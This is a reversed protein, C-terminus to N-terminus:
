RAARSIQPAALNAVPQESIAKTLSAPNYDTDGSYVATITHTGSSLPLFITAVGSSNLTATGILNGFEYFNITGSPIGGASSTVKVTINVGTQTSVSTMTMATLGWITSRMRPAM